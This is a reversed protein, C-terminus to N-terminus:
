LNMKVKCSLERNELWSLCISEVTLSRMQLWSHLNKWKMMTTGEVGPGQGRKTSPSMDLSTLRTVKHRFRNRTYWIPDKRDRISKTLMTKKKVTVLTSACKRNRLLICKTARSLIGQSTLAAIGLKRKGQHQNLRLHLTNCIHSLATSITLLALHNSNNM